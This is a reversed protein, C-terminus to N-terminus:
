VAPATEGVDSEGCLQRNGMYSDEHRGGKM